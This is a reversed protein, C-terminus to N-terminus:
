GHMSFALHLHSVELALQDRGDSDLAALNIGRVETGLHPTIEIVSQAGDLFARPNPHHLARHGPDVHDYPELPPYTDSSFHPLLHAYKYEEEEKQSEEKKPTEPKSEESQVEPRIRLSAFEPITETTTSTTM